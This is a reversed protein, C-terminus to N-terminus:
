TSSDKKVVPSFFSRILLTPETRGFEFVSGTALNNITVMAPSFLMPDIKYFDGGYRHFIDLFSTGFDASASSPLKPGVVEIAEDTTDVWLIVEGGYLISDNTRGIATLDDTPIPPLFASGIGSRITTVDFKLTHLKHLCSEVSRAVVQYSGALSATRAVLLILSDPHIGAEKAIQKIIAETPLTAAELIGVAVNDPEEHYGLHEFIEEKGRLARMPGSGMAFYGEGAVKWGAYQSLLCAATPDTLSVTVKPVLRGELRDLSCEVDGLDALCALAVLQGAELSGRARVGADVVQAGGIDEITCGLVEANAMLDEAVTASWENLHLVDMSKM